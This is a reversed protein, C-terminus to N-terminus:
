AIFRQNIMYFCYFYLTKSLNISVIVSFFWGIYLYLLVGSFNLGGVLFFSLFLREFGRRNVFFNSTDKYLFVSNTTIGPQKEAINYSLGHRRNGFLRIYLDLVRTTQLTKSRFLINSLKNPYVGNCNWRGAGLESDRETNFWGIRFGSYGLDNFPKCYKRWFSAHKNGYEKFFEEPQTYPNFKLSHNFSLNRHYTTTKSSSSFHKLSSKM